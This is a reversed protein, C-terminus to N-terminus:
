RPPASPVEGAVWDEPVGALEAEVELERLQREARELEKRYRKIEARLQGARADGTLGSGVGPPALNWDGGTGAHAELEAQARALGARAAEVEERAVRFRERWESRTAGGRQELRPRYTEPLALLEELSVPPVSQGAREAEQGAVAGSALGTSAVLLVLVSRRAGARAAPRGSGRDTRRAANRRRM